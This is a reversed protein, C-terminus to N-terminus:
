KKAPGRFTAKESTEIFDILNKRTMQKRLSARFEPDMTLRQLRRELIEQEPPNAPLVLFLAETKRGDMAKFNVPKELFALIMMTRELFVPLAQATAMFAIGDLSSSAISERSLISVKTAVPDITPSYPLAALLEDIVEDRNNGHLRYLIAGNNIAETLTIRDNITALPPAGGSKRSNIWGGIEDAKFRWQGGIKIAFPIQNNSVMRYITKESVGLNAAVDKLSIFIRDM